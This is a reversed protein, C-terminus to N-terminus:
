LKQLKLLWLFVLVFKKKTWLKELLLKTRLMSRLLQLRHYKEKWKLDLFNVKERRPLVQLSKKPVGSNGTDSSRCKSVMLFYFSPSMFVLVTIDWPDMRCCLHSSLSQCSSASSLLIIWLGLSPYICGPSSGRWWNRRRCGMLTSGRFLHSMKEGGHRKNHECSRDLSPEMVYETWITEHDWCCRVSELSRGQFLQLQPRDPPNRM